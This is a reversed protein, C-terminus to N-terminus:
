LPGDDIEDRAAKSLQSCPGLRCVRCTRPWSSAGTARLVYTCNKNAGEPIEVQLVSPSPTPPPQTQIVAANIGNQQTAVDFYVSLETRFAEIGAAVAKDTLEAITGQIRKRIEEQVDVVISDLLEPRV